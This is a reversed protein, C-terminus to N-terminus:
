GCGFSRPEVMAVGIIVGRTMRPFSYKWTRLTRKVVRAAARQAALTNSSPPCDHAGALRLPGSLLSRGAGPGGNRQLERRGRNFPQALRMVIQIGAVTEEITHDGTKSALLSRKRFLLR